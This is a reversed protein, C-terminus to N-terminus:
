TVCVSYWTASKVPTLRSRRSTPPPCRGRDHRRRQMEFRGVGTSVSMVQVDPASTMTTPRAAAADWLQGAHTSLAKVDAASTTWAPAQADAATTSTTWPRGTAAGTLTRSWDVAVDSQALSVLLMDRWSAELLLV